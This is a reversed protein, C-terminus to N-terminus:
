NQESAQHKKILGIQTLAFLFSAPVLVAFKFTVWGDDDLSRWAWENALASALFFISWRWSLLTWGRQTLRFASGMMEKILPKGQWQSAAVLIALILNVVTPKMKFITDDNLLLSLAGMPIVLAAILLTLAKPKEGIAFTWVLTIITLGTFVATALMIPRYLGVGTDPAFWYTALFGLLPGYERMIHMTKSSM